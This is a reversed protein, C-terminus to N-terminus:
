KEIWGLFHANWFPETGVVPVSRGDKVLAYNSRSRSRSRFIEGVLGGRGRHRRYEFKYGDSSVANSRIRSKNLTDLDPDIVRGKEIHEFDIDIKRAHRTTHDFVFIAPFKRNSRRKGEPPSRTRIYLKGDDLGIRYRNNASRDSYNIAFIADFKPDPVTSVRANGVVFFVLILVLPLLIGAVLAYNDKLLKTMVSAVVGTFRWTLTGCRRNAVSLFM